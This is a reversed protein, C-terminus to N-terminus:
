GLPDSPDAAGASPTSAGRACWYIPWPATAIPPPGNRSTRPTPFSSLRAALSTRGSASCTTSGSSRSRELAGRGRPFRATHAHAAGTSGLLRLSGDSSCVDSLQKEPFILSTTVIAGSNILPNHPRNEHNLVLENFNRGSPERGVSRHVVEEGHMELTIAYTIPKSCSQVCFPTLADGFAARQGDISCLAVGPNNPRMAGSGTGAHTGARAVPAAVTLATRFTTQAAGFQEPPVSALQPIYTAVAGGRENLCKKYLEDFQRDSASGM